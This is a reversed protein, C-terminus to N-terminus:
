GGKFKLLIWFLFIVVIFIIALTVFLNLGGVEQKEKNKREFYEYVRMGLIKGTTLEYFWLIYFVVVFLWFSYDSGSYYLISGFVLLSIILTVWNYIRGKKM